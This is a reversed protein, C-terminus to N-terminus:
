GEDEVLHEAVIEVIDKVAPAGEGAEKSADNLMIMCFPCAVAVTEAGTAQAEAYRTLNIRKGEEEKWIQAGGAGCCFSKNKSHEMEVLSAGVQELVFRPADYENNHRGLYCPDHFTIKELGDKDIKIKGEKLLEEVFQSHHVVDYEGGFQPYENKLTHFGHPCTTIIRKPKIENLMEVNATALEFFLYENGSRRASDGCCAEQEGLVAYNVGAANLIKALARATKQARSDTAAACGVWWLVEPEPNEEITPVSLGEAWKMRESPPVNWPNMTREMGRFATEWQKPFTNEMLVLGRRIDMIDRMPENGVPCVEICAGCSTCAWVAEEPIVFETLTQSTEEGKALRDGEYNLFYRKNIELAAPSLLKDTNYAPCVEQCRFCMICAYADMLQYWQLDELRTAGFQEISEDDFDLPDLEGISRREPKLLFNLPAFFLHIHKSYPFYPIFLMILGLATWFAVHHAVTLATPSLGSWLSAVATAFPQYPDPGEKAIAFSQGLFRSGVHFLIFLGVILSDRNIGKRAKPNLFIDDRTGLVPSKFVFRRLLLATMGILVSVSLIDAGLRYLNGITGTGMFHFNPIYGELVDGVNIFMYYMFGWAVMTHFVTPWFRMKWLPRLTITKILADILRKRALSWDPKGQGRGIIRVLRDIAKWTAYGTALLALTFLIKEWLTLM